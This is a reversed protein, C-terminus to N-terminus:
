LPKHTFPKASEGTYTKVVQGNGVLKYKYITLGELGVPGRAHTKATSIGIEAGFGYRFGDAFRTSANVFVSASDVSNMFVQQIQPDEALIGDTHHSGYQNIHEIADNINNVIKVSLTLDGYETQWDAETAAEKIGSNLSRTKNCGKLTIDAEKAKPIFRELFQNAIATDVLLTELANCASPYQIKSDIIVDIAEDIKASPHVYQHCIGDAHGLVPINTSSMIQQVLANSGRPIVLDVYQPYNLMDHVAERTTVLQAWGATLFPCQENLKEVLTMFAQNSHLAESGGKLVVTNGSKLILSLIQPIVDPRSEFIIGIVGIPVTIRELILNTDLETKLQTTGIPDPLNVMDKIGQVLQTIKGSTLILRQYLVNAIKGAQADCDKKNEALLFDQHEDILQAFITLAENRQALSLTSQSYFSTKAAKLLTEIQETETKNETTAAM